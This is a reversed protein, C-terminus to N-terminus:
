VERVNADSALEFRAFNHSLVLSRPFGIFQDASYDNSGTFGLSWLYKASFPISPWPNFFELNTGEAQMSEVLYFRRRLAYLQSLSETKKSNCFWFVSTM